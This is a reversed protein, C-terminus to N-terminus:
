PGDGVKPCLEDLGLLAPFNDQPNEKSTPNGLGIQAKHEKDFEASVAAM